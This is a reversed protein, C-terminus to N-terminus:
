RETSLNAEGQAEVDAGSEVAGGFEESELDAGSVRGVRAQHSLM